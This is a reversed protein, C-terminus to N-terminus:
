GLVAILDNAAAQEVGWLVRKGESIARLSEPEPEREPWGIREFISAPVM